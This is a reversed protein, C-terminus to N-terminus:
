FTCFFVFLLSWVFVQLYFWVTYLMKNLLSLYCIINFFYFLFSLQQYSISAKRWPIRDTELPKTSSLVLCMWTATRIPPHFQEQYLLYLNSLNDVLIPVSSSTNVYPKFFAIPWKWASRRKLFMLLDTSSYGRLIIVVNLLWSKNTLFYILYYQCKVGM